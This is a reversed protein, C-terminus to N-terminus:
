MYAYIYIYIYSLYISVEEDFPLNQSPPPVLSLPFHFPFQEIGMKSALLTSHM